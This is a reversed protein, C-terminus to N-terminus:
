KAAANPNELFRRARRYTWISVALSIVIQLGTGIREWASAPWADSTIFWHAGSAAIMLFMGCFIGLSVPDKGASPNAM